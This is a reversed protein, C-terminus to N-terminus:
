KPGSVSRVAHMLEAADFSWEGQYVGGEEIILLVHSGRAPGMASQGSTNREPDIKVTVQAPRGGGTVANIIAIM